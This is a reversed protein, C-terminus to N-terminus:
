PRAAVEVRVERGSREIRFLRGAAEVTALGEAPQATAAEPFRAALSRGIAYAFEEADRESSWRSHWDTVGSAEGGEWRRVRDAQWGDGAMLGLNDKGTQLSVLVVIAQEGLCDEDALRMGPRGAAPEADIEGVTAPAEPHLLARTTRAREMASAVATWGGERYRDVARAFGELYVFELLRREVGTATGLAVPVLRGDLVERPDLRHEVVADSLNMGRFLYQMAALNAEGEAWAAAALLADTTPALSDTARREHQRLHMALHAVLPEDIRVGTLLLLNSLEEQAPTEPVFDELSLRDPAVLLRHGEPDVGIGELDAALVHLLQAPTELGGLGLDAWARGRAQLRAAPLVNTARIDAAVVRMDDHVRVAVPLRAFKEGRIAELNGAIRRVEELLPLDAGKLTPPAPAQAEVQPTALQLLSSLIWAGSL